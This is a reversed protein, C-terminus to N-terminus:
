LEAKRTFLTTVLNSDLTNVPSLSQGCFQVVFDSRQGDETPSLALRTPRYDVTSGFKTNASSFSALVTQPNAYESKLLTCTLVTSQVPSVQPTKDSRKSFKSTSSQPPYTGASVGLTNRFASELVTVRPTRGTTPLATNGPNTWGSPLTTPLPCVNWVLSYYVESAVLELYHVFGGTDDVLYTGNAVVVSQLYSGLDEVGYHGGPTTV